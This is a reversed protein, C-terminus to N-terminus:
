YLHYALGASFHEMSGQAIGWGAALNLQLANHRSHVLDYAFGAHLGFGTGRVDPTSDKYTFTKVGLGASFDLLAREGLWHAFDGGVIMFTGNGQDNIVGVSDFRVGLSSAQSVHMGLLLNVAPGPGSLSPGTSGGVPRAMDSHIEAMGAGLGVVLTFGLRESPAAVVAEPEAPGVAASMAPPAAASAVLVPAPQAVPLAPPAPAASPAPAAPPQAPARPAPQPAVEASAQVAEPHAQAEAEAKARAEAQAKALAQAEAEAKARTAAVQAERKAIAAARVRAYVVDHASELAMRWGTTEAEPRMMAIELLELRTDDDGASKTSIEGKFDQSGDDKTNTVKIAASVDLAGLVTVKGPEVVFHQFAGGVAQDLTHVENRSFLVKVGTWTYEGPQLAVLVVDNPFKNIDDGAIDVHQFDNWTKADKEQPRSFGIRLMSVYYGSMDLDTSVKFLVGSPPGQPPTRPWPHMELPSSACGALLAALFWQTSRKM